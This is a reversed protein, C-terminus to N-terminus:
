YHKVSVFVGKEDFVSWHHRIVYYIREQLAPDLHSLDMNHEMIVKHKEPIFPLYYLPDM